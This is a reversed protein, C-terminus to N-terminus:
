KSIKLQYVICIQIDNWITFNIDSKKHIAAPANSLPAELNLFIKQRLNGLDYVHTYIAGHHTDDLIPLVSKM